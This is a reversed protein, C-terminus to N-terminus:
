MFRNDSRKKVIEDDSASLWGSRSEGVHDFQAIYPKIDLLPTGDLVDIGMVKLTNDTRGLLKVLSLGIHNPRLPSRTAFIGRPVSDMFPVVKLEIRKAQHFSYILYIHSFGEIDQLGEEYRSDIVIEGEIQSAGRPQIPMDILKTFPSRIIGIFQM